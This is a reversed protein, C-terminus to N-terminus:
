SNHQKFERKTRAKKTNWGNTGAVKPPRGRPRKITDSSSPKGRKSKVSEIRINQHESSVSDTSSDTDMDETRYSTQDCCKNKKKLTSGRPKPSSTPRKADKGKETLRKRLSEHLDASKEFSYLDHVSTKQIFQRKTVEGTELYRLAAAMTRFTYHSVPDTIYSDKRIGEKTKRYVIEKVWGRPLEPPNFEVDALINDRTDTNCQGNTDCVNIKMEKVYLLVDQKSMLRVGLAPYVYFKFMKDMKEGGARIELLWGKPLWEHVSLFSISEASKKSEIWHEDMESFLYDLVEAKMMFRAGSVPSVFYQYPIGDDGRKVEMIWGDPLWDPPQEVNVEVNEPVKVEMGEDTNPLGRM